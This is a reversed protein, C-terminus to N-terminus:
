RSDYHLSQNSFYKKLLSCISWIQRIKKSQNFWRESLDAKGNSEKNAVAAASAVKDLKDVSDFLKVATDYRRGQSHDKYM